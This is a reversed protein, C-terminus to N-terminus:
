RIVCSSSSTDAPCQLRGIASAMHLKEHWAQLVPNRVKLTVLHVLKSLCVGNSSTDREEMATNSAADTVALRLLNLERLQHLASISRLISSSAPVTVGQLSLSTLSTPLVAATAPLQLDFLALRQLNPLWPLQLRLPQQPSSSGKLSLSCADAWHNHQGATPAELFQQLQQFGAEQPHCPNVTGLNVHVAAVAARWAKSVLAAQLYDAASLRSLINQLLEVVCLAEHPGQLSCCLLLLLLVALPYAHQQLQVPM